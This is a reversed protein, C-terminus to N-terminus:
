LRSPTPLAHAPHPCPIPLTHAPHPCPTPLTHLCPQPTLMTPTPTPSPRCRGPAPKDWGIACTTSEGGRGESLHMVGEQGM